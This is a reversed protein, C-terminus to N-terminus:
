IVYPFICYIKNVFICYFINVRLRSHINEYKFIIPWFISRTIM